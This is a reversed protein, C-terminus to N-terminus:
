VFGLENDLNCIFPIFSLQLTSVTLACLAATTLLVAGCAPFNRTRNEITDYSSKVSM